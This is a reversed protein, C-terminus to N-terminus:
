SVPAFSYSSGERAITGASPLIFHYAAEEFQLLGSGASARRTRKLPWSPVGCEVPNNGPVGGTLM